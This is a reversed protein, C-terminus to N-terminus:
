VCVPLLDQSNLSQREYAECREGWLVMLQVLTLKKSLETWVVIDSKDPHDREM